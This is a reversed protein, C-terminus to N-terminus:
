NETNFHEVIKLLENIPNELITQAFEIVKDDLIPEEISDIMNKDKLLKLLCEAWLNDHYKEFDADSVLHQLAKVLAVLVISSLIGWRKKPAENIINCQNAMKESMIISILPGEIEVDFRDKSQQERICIEIASTASISESDKFALNKSWTPYTALIHGASYDFVAFDKVQECVGDIQYGKIDQIATIFINVTVRECLLNKPISYEFGEGSFRQSHHYYTSTCDIEIMLAAKGEDVLRKISDNNLSISKIKLTFCGEEEDNIWEIVRDEDSPQDETWGGAGYVPYPFSESKNIIM